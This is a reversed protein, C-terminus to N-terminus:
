GLHYATHKAVSAALKYGITWAPETESAPYIVASLNLTYPLQSLTNLDELFERKLGEWEDPKVEPWNKQSAELGDRLLIINFKLNANAHALVEAITYPLGPIARTAQVASIGELISRPSAFDHSLEDNILISLTDPPPGYLVNEMPELIFPLSSSPHRPILLFGQASVV